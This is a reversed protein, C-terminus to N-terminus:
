ACTLGTGSRRRMSALHRTSRLYKRASGAAGQQRLYASIWRSESLDGLPVNGGDPVPRRNLHRWGSGRRTSWNWFRRERNPDHGWPGRGSSGAWLHPNHKHQAPRRLMQGAGSGACVEKHSGPATARTPWSPGRRKLVRQHKKTNATPHAPVPYRISEPLQGYSRTRGPLRGEDRLEDVHSVDPVMRYGPHRVQLSMRGSGTSLVPVTWGGDPVRPPVPHGLKSLGNLGPQEVRDPQAQPRVAM